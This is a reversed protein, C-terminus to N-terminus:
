IPLAKDCFDFTVWPGQLEARFQSVRGGGKSNVEKM